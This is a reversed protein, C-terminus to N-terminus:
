GPAREDNCKVTEPGHPDIPDTVPTESNFDRTFDEVTYGDPILGKGELCAFIIAEFPEETPNTVSDNYLTAVLATTGVECTSNWQDFRDQDDASVSTLYYEILGDSRERVGVSPNGGPPFEQEMCDLWLQNAEVYEAHSVEGDALAEREFDSTANEKAFEVTLVDAPPLSTSPEPDSTCGVVSTAVVLTAVLMAVSQSKM